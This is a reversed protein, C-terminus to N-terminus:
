HKKQLVCNLEKTDELYVIMSKRLKKQLIKGIM